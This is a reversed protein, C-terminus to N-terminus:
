PLSNMAARFAAKLQPVTKGNWQAVVLALAKLHKNINDIDSKDLPTEDWVFADVVGQAADRQPQTAEPKFDIRWTTKDIKKGVSVGDIPAVASIAKSLEPTMQM